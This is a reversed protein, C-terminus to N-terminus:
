LIGSGARYPLHGARPCVADHCFHCLPSADEACCQWYDCEDCCCELANGADDTHQGNGPCDKGHNGPVLMVGTPDAIM